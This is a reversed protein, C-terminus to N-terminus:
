QTLEADLLVSLSPDSQIRSEVKQIQDLARQTSDAKGTITGYIVSYDRLLDLLDAVSLKNYKISAQSLEEGLVVAKAFQAILRSKSQAENEQNLLIEAAVNDLLSSRASIDSVAMAKQQAEIIRIRTVNDKGINPLTEFVHALKAFRMTVNVVHKQANKIDNTSLLYGRPLDTYMAALKRHANCVEDLADLAPKMGDTLSVDSYILDLDSDGFTNTTGLSKSIENRTRPPMAVSASISKAGLECAMNAENKFLEATLQLAKAKEQTCSSLWLALVCLLPIKFKSFKDM